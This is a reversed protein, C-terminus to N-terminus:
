VKGGICWGSSLWWKRVPESSRTTSRSCALVTESYVKVIRLTGSVHADTSLCQWCSLPSIFLLFKILFSYVSWFYPVIHWKLLIFLQNQQRDSFRSLCLAYIPSTLSQTSACLSSVGTRIIAPEPKFVIFLRFAGCWVCQGLAAWYCHCSAVGVGFGSRLTWSLSCSSKCLLGWLSIVLVNIFFFIFFAWTQYKRVPLTQLCCPRTYTFYVSSCSIGKCSTLPSM